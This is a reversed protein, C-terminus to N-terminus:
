QYVCWDGAVCAPCPNKYESRGFDAIFITRDAEDVDGDCDFDGNCQNENTCPNQLKTRINFNKLFLISDTANVSGDCNFDGECDCANGIGNGQSPYTDEQAPNETFPCNDDSDDIADNDYDKPYQNLITSLTNAIFKHAIISPHNDNKLRWAADPDVINQESAYKQWLPTFDVMHFGLQLSIDRIWKRPRYALVVVEFKHKISLSQLEEMAKYYAKIGVMNRYQKPVKNPDNERGIRRSSRRPAKITKISKLTRRFYKAIFLQNLSFYDEQERIFHPLDIDNKCYHIIVIDPKYQLGKEKLTEVEVVTNYGPVATNIIEWSFKSYNLNLTKSLVSLYAEEDKVGWGFMNSDGIGVIRISQINKDILIAKGRFGNSNISVPQNNFIVSLNPILEYIIRPNKSLRIMRGFKVKEGTRPINSTEDINELTNLDKRYAVLRFGVESLLLMIIISSVLLIYNAVKGM